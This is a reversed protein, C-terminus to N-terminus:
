IRAAIFTSFLFKLVVVQSKEISSLTRLAFMTRCVLQRCVRSSAFALTRTEAQQNNSVEFLQLEAQVVIYIYTLVFTM